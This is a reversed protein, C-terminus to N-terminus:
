CSGVGKRLALSSVMWSTKWKMTMLVIICLNIEKLKQMWKTEDRKTEQAPLAAAAITKDTSLLKLVTQSLDQWKNRGLKYLETYLLLM